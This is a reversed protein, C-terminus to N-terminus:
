VRAGRAGLRRRRARRLVTEGGCRLRSPPLRQRLGSEAPELDDRVRGSPRGASRALASPSRLPLDPERDGADHRAAPRRVGRVLRRTRCRADDLPVAGRADVRPGRERVRRVPDGDGHDECCGRTAPDGVFASRGGEASLGVPPDPVRSGARPHGRTGRVRLALRRGAADRDARLARAVEGPEVERHGIARRLGAEFMSELGRRVALIPADWELDDPVGPLGRYHLEYALYLALHLDDDGLPDEPPSPRESRVGAGALLGLMEESFPGRARPLAKGNWTRSRDLMVDGM